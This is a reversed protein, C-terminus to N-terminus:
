WRPILCIQDVFGHASINALCSRFDLTYRVFLRPKDHPRKILNLTRDLIASGASFGDISSVTSTREPSSPTPSAPNARVSRPGDSIKASPPEEVPTEFFEIDSSDRTLDIIDDPDQKFTRERHTTQPLTTATLQPEPIKDKILKTSSRTKREERLSPVTRSVAGLLKNESFKSSHSRRGM